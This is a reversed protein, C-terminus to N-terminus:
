RVPHKGLFFMVNPGHQGLTLWEIPHWHWKTWQVLIPHWHWARKDTPGGTGVSKWGDKFGGQWHQGLTPWHQITLVLVSMWCLWGVYGNLISVTPGSTIFLGSPLPRVFLLGFIFSQTGRRSTQCWGRSRSRPHHICTIPNHPHSLKFDHCSAMTHGWWRFCSLPHPNPHNWNLPLCTISLRLHILGKCHLWHVWYVRNM